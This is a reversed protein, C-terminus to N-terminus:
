LAGKTSPVGSSRRTSRRRPASRAPSRRSSARPSTTRTAAPSCTRHARDHAANFSSRRSARAAGDLRHLPRRDPPARVRGARRRARPVAPRLPRRRGPHAGRRAARDRRRVPSARRTASRRASRTASCSASTRPPTTCTSRRHRRLRDRHPRDALAERVRHAPPRPVARDHRHESRARATSTSRCSSARSARRRAVRLATRAGTMRRSGVPARGSSRPSRPRPLRRDRGRHRRHRAPPRPHALDRILVGRELSRGGSRRRTTSAASCCSTRGARRVRPLRADALGAATRDRQVCIEDVM